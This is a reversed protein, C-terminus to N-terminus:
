FKIEKQLESVADLVKERYSMSPSYYYRLFIDKGIRGQLMNVIEPEIGSQRLYSAHIKRCYKIRMSLCRSMLAHRISQYGGFSLFSPASQETM